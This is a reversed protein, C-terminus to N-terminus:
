PGIDVADSSSKRMEFPEPQSPIWEKLTRESKGKKLNQLSIFERSVFPISSDTALNNVIARRGPTWLSSPLSTRGGM